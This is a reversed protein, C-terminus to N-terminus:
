ASCLEVPFGAEIGGLDLCDERLVTAFHEWTGDSTAHFAAVLQEDGGDTARTLPLVAFNDRCTPDGSPTAQDAALGPLLSELGEATCTNAAVTPPDSPLPAADDSSSSGRTLVLAAVLGVIVVGLLVIVLTTRSPLHPGSTPDPPSSETPVRPSSM